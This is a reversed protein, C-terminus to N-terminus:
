QVIITGLMNPHISCYYAYTGAQTFKFSFTGGSALLSSKFEGKNAVVDHQMPDQNVWTVTQGVKITLTAPNYATNKMIVQPGSASSTAPGGSTTTTSGGCAALVTAAVIILMLAIGAGALGRRCHAKTRHGQDSPRRWSKM